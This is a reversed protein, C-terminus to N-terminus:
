GGPPGADRSAPVAIRETQVAVSTLHLWPEPAYGPHDGIFFGDLGVDEALLGAHIL